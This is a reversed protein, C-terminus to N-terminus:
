RFCVCARTRLKGQREDCLFKSTQNLNRKVLWDRLTDHHFMVTDDGRRVLFGSLTNFRAVFEHWTVHTSLANVCHFIETCTLPHLSAAAVALIDAVKEYSKISSFRLNCELLFVESLCVPLVKFSSKIVLHGRSM